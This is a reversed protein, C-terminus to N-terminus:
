SRYDANIRVYELTLDSGYVTASEPGAGLDVEIEVNRFHPPYPAHGGNVLMGARDFQRFIERETDPSICFKGNEFVVQGGLSLRARSADLDLDDSVRGVIALLRGVNPDNGAVACKFLPSNVIAKGMIKAARASPAGKVHAQIVHSTGEGNRVVDEALDRCVGHLAEEFAQLDGEAPQIRDSCALVVTDSTSTDTDVSISNFSSDVAEKLMRRLEDRPVSLDTVLYSLMTAMNPEIM